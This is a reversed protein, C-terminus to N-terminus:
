ARANIMRNGITSDKSWSPILGWKASVLERQDNAGLRLIPAMQTPAINYRATWPSWRVARLLEALEAGSVILAYRGCM